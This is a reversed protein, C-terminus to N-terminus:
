ACLGETLIKIDGKLNEFEPVKSPKLNHKLDCGLKQWLLFQQPSWPPRLLQTLANKPTTVLNDKMRNNLSQKM